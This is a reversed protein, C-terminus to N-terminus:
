RIGSVHTPHDVHSHQRRINLLRDLATVMRNLETHGLQDCGNRQRHSPILLPREKTDNCSRPRISPGEVVQGRRSFNGGASTEVHLSGSETFRLHDTKELLYLKARLIGFSAPLVADALRRVVFPLALERAHRHPVKLLKALQLVLVSLEFAHVGVQRQHM